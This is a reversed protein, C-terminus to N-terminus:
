YFGIAKPTTPAIEGIDEDLLFQVAEPYTKNYFRMVFSIADGGVHDYQHYWLNDRISVKMGNDVWEYETGSKKVIEGQSVLLNVLNTSHANEKKIKYLSSFYSM